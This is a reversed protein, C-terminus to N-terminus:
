FGWDESLVAVDGTVVVDPSQSVNGQDPDVDYLGAGGEPEVTTTEDAAAVLAAAAAVDSGGPDLTTTGATAGPTTEANAVGGALVAGIGGLAAAALLSRRDM